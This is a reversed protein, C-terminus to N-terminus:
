AAHLGGAGVFQDFERIASVANARQRVAFRKMWHDAGHGLSLREVDFLKAQSFTKATMGSFEHNPVDTEARCGVRQSDQAARTFNGAEDSQDAKVARNFREAERQLMTVRETVELIVLLVDFMEDRMMAHRKRVHRLRHLPLQVQRVKRCQQGSVRLSGKSRSLKEGRRM